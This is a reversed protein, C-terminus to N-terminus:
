WAQHRGPRPPRRRVTVASVWVPRLPAPAQRRAHHDVIITQGAEVGTTIGDVEELAKLAHTDLYPLGHGDAARRAVPLDRYQAVVAPTGLRARSSTPHHQPRAIGVRLTNKEVVPQGARRGGDFDALAQVLRHSADDVVGEAVEPHLDLRPRLRYLRLPWRRPCAAVAVTLDRDGAVVHEVEVGEVALLRVLPQRGGDDGTEASGGDEPKLFYLVVVSGLVLTDDRGVPSETQQYFGDDSGTAGAIREALDVRDM